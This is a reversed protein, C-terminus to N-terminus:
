SRHLQAASTAIFRTCFNELQGREYDADFRRGVVIVPCCYVPTGEPTTGLIALDTGYDDTIIVWDMGLETRLYEGVVVGFMQRFDTVDLDPDGALAEKYQEVTTEFDAYLQPARPSVGAERATRLLRDRWITTGADLQTIDM